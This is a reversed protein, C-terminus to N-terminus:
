LRVASRNLAVFVRQLRLCKMQLVKVGIAYVCDQHFASVPEAADKLRLALAALRATLAGKTDSPM